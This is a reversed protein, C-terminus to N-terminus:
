RAVALIRDESSVPRGVELGAPDGQRVASCLAADRDHEVRAHELM